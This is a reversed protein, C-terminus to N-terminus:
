PTSTPSSAPAAASPTSAVPTPLSLPGRQGCGALAFGLVLLSASAVVLRTGMETFGATGSAVSRKVKNM